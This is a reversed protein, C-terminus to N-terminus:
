LKRMKQEFELEIVSEKSKADKANITFDVQEISTSEEKFPMSSSIQEEIM